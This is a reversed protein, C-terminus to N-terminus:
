PEDESENPRGAKRATCLRMREAALEPLFGALLCVLMAKMDGSDLLVACAAATRLVSQVFFCVPILRERRASTLYLLFTLLAAALTVGWSFATM